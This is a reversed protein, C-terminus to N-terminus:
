GCPAGRPRRGRERREQKPRQARPRVRARIRAEGRTRGFLGPRPEELVEIEAYSDDVGLQELADEAEHGQEQAPRRAPFVPGDDDDAVVLPEPGGGFADDGNFVTPQGGFFGPFVVAM